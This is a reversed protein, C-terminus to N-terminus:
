HSLLVGDHMHVVAHGKKHPMQLRAKVSTFYKGLDKFINISPPQKKRMEEGQMKQKEWNMRNETRDKMHFAKRLHRAAKRQRNMNLLPASFTAQIHRNIILKGPLHHPWPWTVSESM